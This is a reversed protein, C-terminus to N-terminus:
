PKSGSGSGCKARKSHTLSLIYRQNVSLIHLVIVIHLIEIFFVLHLQKRHGLTMINHGGRLNLRRLTMDIQLAQSVEKWKGRVIAFAKGGDSNPQRVRV